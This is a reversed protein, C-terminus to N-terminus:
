TKEGEKEQRPILFTKAVKDLFLNMEANANKLTQVQDCLRNISKTDEQITKELGEIQTVKYSLEITEKKFRDALDKFDRRNDASKKKIEERLKIVLNAFRKNQRKEAALELTLRTLSKKDSM